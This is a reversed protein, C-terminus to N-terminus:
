RTKQWPMFLVYRYKKMRYVRTHPSVKKLPIRTATVRARFPIFSWFSSWAVWHQSYECELYEWGRVTVLNTKAIKSIRSSTCGCKAGFFAPLDASYDKSINSSVASWALHFSYRIIDSWCTEPIYKDSMNSRNRTRLVFICLDVMSIGSYKRNLFATPLDPEMGLYPTWYSPTDGAM